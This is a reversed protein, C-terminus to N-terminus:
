KRIVRGLADYVVGERLIYIQGNEIFKIAKDESGIAEISTANNEEDLIRIVAPAGAQTLADETELYAKGAALEIGNELNYFGCTSPSSTKYGFIYHYTGSTSAAVISTTTQGKLLNGSIATGSEAVSIAFEDGATGKIMLGEGAPVTATTSSLIVTSGSADSAYYATGGTIKSLDLACQSSLSSWGAASITGYVKTKKELSIKGLGVNGNNKYTYIWRIYKTDEPLNKITKTEGGTMLINYHDSYNTGDTSVQLTFTGGSFGNGTVNFSLIGPIENIKLVLYDGTGDFKLKTNDTNYDSGLGSQRLGITNAIDSKGGNFSFPLSTAIFVNYDKSAVDSSTWGSKMAIAKITTLDSVTIAGTYPTSNSNPTSGNTTYYITAGDVSCGLEVSQQKDYEVDPSLSFTPTPVKLTYQASVIESDTLGDKIAIAKITSSSAITIPTGNYKNSSSTPDQGNLTYYINAGVTTCNLEVSQAANYTGGEVSFTPTTAKVAYTASIVDSEDLGNIAIAKITTSETLVIPASYETSISTPDAPTAGQTYYIKAGATACSLVVSEGYLVTAGDSPNFVPNAIAKYTYTASSVSSSVGGKIAIAKVKVTSGANISIGTASSYTTSTSTPAAPTTGDTTMTYYIAAGESSSLHLTFDESFDGEVPDFTPETPAALTGTVKIDDMRITWAKTPKHKFILTLSKGTGTIDESLLTWSANTIAGNSILSTESGNDIIYSVNVKHTTSGGLAGFSLSLSEYGEININSIQIITAETNATGAHYCGSLGSAGTYGNSLNAAAYNNKGITGSGSYHSNVTGSTSFMGATASYGSYSSYATATATSGFNEVYIDTGWLNSSGVILACLLLMCNLFVKKM